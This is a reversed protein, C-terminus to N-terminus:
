REEHFLIVVAQTVENNIISFIKLTEPLYIFKPKHDITLIIVAGDRKCDKAYVAYTDTKILISGVTHRTPSELEDFSVQQERFEQLAKQFTEVSCDFHFRIM